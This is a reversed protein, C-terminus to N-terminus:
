ECFATRKRPHLDVHFHNHHAKNAEPGLVTGFIGCAKAHIAKLFGDAPTPKLIPAAAVPQIPAKPAAPVQGAAQAPQGQAASATEVPEPARQWDSLLLIKKGGKTIFGAIDLANAKAHQSLKRGPDNYVSRCSYSSMVSIATVPEGLMAKAQPLIATALWRNTAAVMPCNVTAAPELAVRQGNITLAKLKVPAPDGCEGQRMPPLMEYDASVTKLITACQAQAAAIEQPSWVKPEDPAVPPVGTISPIQRLGRRNLAGPLASSLVTGSRPAIAGPKAETDRAPNAEPLQPLRAVSATTESGGRPIQGRAPESPASPKQPVPMAAREVPRVITKFPNTEPVAPKASTGPAFGLSPLGPRLPKVGGPASGFHEMYGLPKRTPAELGGESSLTQALGPHAGIVVLAIGAPLLPLRCFPNTGRKLGNVHNM